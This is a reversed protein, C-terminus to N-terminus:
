EFNTENMAAPKAHASMHCLEFIGYRKELAHNELDSLTFESKMEIGITNLYGHACEECCTHLVLQPLDVTSSPTIM